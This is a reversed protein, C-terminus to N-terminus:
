GTSPKCTYTDGDCTVAEAYPRRCEKLDPSLGFIKCDECFEENCRKCCGKLRAPSKQGDGPAVQVEPTAASDIEQNGTSEVSSAEGILEMSGKESSAEQKDPGVLGSSPSAPATTGNAHCALFLAVAAVSLWVRGNEVKKYM